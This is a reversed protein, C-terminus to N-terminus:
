RTAAFNSRMRLVTGSPEPRLEDAASSTDDANASSAPCFISATRNACSQWPASTRKTPNGTPMMSWYTETMPRFFAASRMSQRLRSLSATSNGWPISITATFVITFCASACDAYLSRVSSHAAAASAM